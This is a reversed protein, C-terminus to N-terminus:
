VFACPRIVVLAHSILYARRRPEQENRMSDLYKLM